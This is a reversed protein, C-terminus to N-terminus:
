QARLLARLKNGAQASQDACVAVGAKALTSEFETRLREANALPGKRSIEIFREGAPLTSVDVAYPKAAARYSQVRAPGLPRIGPPLPWAGPTRKLAAVQASSLVKDLALTGAKLEGPTNAAVSRTVSLAGAVRTGHLDYECKGEGRPLAGKPLAACDQDAVKLTLEADKGTGRLRIRLGKGFLDLAATDFLYVDFPAGQRRLALAREVNAPTDCLAYQLDIPAKSAAADGAAAPAVALLAAIALGLRLFAPNSMPRTQWLASGEALGPRAPSRTWEFTRDDTSDDDGRRGGGGM